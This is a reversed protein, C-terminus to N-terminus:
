SRRLKGGPLSSYPLQPTAAPPIPPPRGTRPPGPTGVRWSARRRAAPPHPRAPTDEQWPPRKWMRARGRAPAEASPCAKRGWKSVPWCARSAAEMWPSLHNEIQCQWLLWAVLIWCVRHHRWREWLLHWPDHEIPLGLHAMSLSPYHMHMCQESTPTAPQLSPRSLPPPSSSDHSCSINGAFNM